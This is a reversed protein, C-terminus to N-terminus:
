LLRQDIRKLLDHDSCLTNIDAQFEDFETTTTCRTALEQAKNNILITAMESLGYFSVITTNADLLERTLENM